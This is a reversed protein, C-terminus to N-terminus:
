QGARNAFLRNNEKATGIAFDTREFIAATM